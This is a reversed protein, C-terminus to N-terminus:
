LGGKGMKHVAQGIIKVRNMEEGDIFEDPYRTKNPNDSTIRLRGDAQLFLRKIRAENNYAIVFVRDNRVTTKSIDILVKEGNHLIPEMSDGSVEVVKLNEPHLREANIWSLQFTIPHLIEVFEPVPSGPGGAVQIDIVPIRASTLPDFTEVDEAQVPHIAVKTISGDGLLDQAEIDLEKLIPRFFQDILDSEGAEIKSLRNQQIGTRRALERQSMGAAERFQRLRNGIDSM